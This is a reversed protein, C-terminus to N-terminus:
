VSDVCKMKRGKGIISDAPRAMSDSSFLALRICRALLKRIGTGQDRNGSKTMQACRISLLTHPFHLLM